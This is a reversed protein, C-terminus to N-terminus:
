SGPTNQFHELYANKVDKPIYVYKLVAKLLEPYMLLPSNESRSWRRQGVSSRHAKGFYLNQWILGPRAPHNAKRVIEELRGGPIRFMQPPRGEAAEIAEANPLLMQVSGSSGTQVYNLPRCYRRIEWVARDLAILKDSSVNYSVTLYRDQGAHDLQKIFAETGESLRIEFPLKKAASQAKLLSHNIDRAEIRNYLLIAKYYKEIAQLAAWHFQMALTARSCIRANIYDMDAVDRFCRTAFNNLEAERQSDLVETAGTSIM